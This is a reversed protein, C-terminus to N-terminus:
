SISRKLSSLRAVAVVEKDRLRAETNDAASARGVLEREFQLAEFSLMDMAGFRRDYYKPPRVERGNIVVKGEPYVDSQFKDLWGAGIGPKLSM